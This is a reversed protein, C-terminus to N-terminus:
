RSVKENYLLAKGIENPIFAIAQGATSLVWGTSIATVSIVTGVAVASAGAARGAFRLSSKAGDVSNEVIWGVGDASAEVGKVVLTGAGVVLVAPVAVSIIIPLASAASLEGSPDGHGAVREARVTGAAGILVAALLPAVLLHPSRPATPM